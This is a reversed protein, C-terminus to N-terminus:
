WGLASRPVRVLVALNEESRGRGPPTFHREDVLEAGEMIHVVKGNKRIELSLRGEGDEEQFTVEYDAQGRAQYCIEWVAREIAHCRAEEPKRTPGCTGVGYLTDPDGPRASMWGPPSAGPSGCGFSLIGFSCLIVRIVARM